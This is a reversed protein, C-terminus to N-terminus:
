TPLMHKLQPFNPWQRGSQENDRAEQALSLSSLFSESDLESFLLYKVFLVSFFV